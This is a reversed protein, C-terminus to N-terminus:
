RFWDYELRESREELPFSVKEGGQASSRKLGLTVEIAVGVRRRCWLVTRTLLAHLGALRDHEGATRPSTWSAM